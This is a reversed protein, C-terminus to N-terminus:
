GALETRWASSVSGLTKWAPTGDVGIYVAALDNGNRVQLDDIGDGNLDAISDVVVSAPFSCIAQWSVAQGEAMSWAGYSGNTNIVIDDTGDGNLDGLGVIQSETKLEPLGQWVPGEASMLWAGVATGNRLILDAGGDGNIDGTGAIQWATDLPTEFGKDASNLFHVGVSGDSKRYLLDAKGDGNFDDVGALEADNLSGYGQWQLQDGDMIWAGAAKTEANWLIVDAFRDGNVDQVAAIEWAGPLESLTRWTSGGESDLLWAGAQGNENVMVIDAIGDGNLDNKLACGPTATPATQWINVPIRVSTKYEGPLSGLVRYESYYDTTLFAGLENGNRIQIDARGDGNLDAVGDIVFGPSFSGLEKTSSIMGSESMLWVSCRDTDKYRLLIDERGDGNFDGAGAVETETGLFGMVYMSPGTGDVMWVSVYDSDRFLIDDYGNGDFDGVACVQTTMSDAEEFESWGSGAFLRTGVAGDSDRRLLVDTLGDGNFDGLGVVSIGAGFPAFSTWSPSQKEDM